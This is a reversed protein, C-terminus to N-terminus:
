PEELAFTTHQEGDDFQTSEVVKIAGAVSYFWTFIPEQGGGLLQTRLQGISNRRLFGHMQYPTLHVIPLKGTQRFSALVSDQMGEEIPEWEHVTIFRM